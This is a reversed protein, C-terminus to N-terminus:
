TFVRAIYSWNGEYDVVLVIQSGAPFSGNVPSVSISNVDLNKTEVPVENAPDLEPLVANSKFGDVTGEEAFVKVTTNRWRRGLFEQYVVIMNEQDSVYVPTNFDIVFAFDTFLIQKLGGKYKIIDGNSLRKLSVQTGADNGCSVGSSLTILLAILLLTSLIRKSSM